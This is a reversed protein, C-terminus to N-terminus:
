IGNMIVSVLITIYAVDLLCWQHYDSNTIIVVTAGDTTIDSMPSLYFQLANINGLSYCLEISSSQSTGLLTHFGHFAFGSHWIM